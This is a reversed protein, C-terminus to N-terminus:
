SVDRLPHADPAPHIDPSYIGVIRLFEHDIASLVKKKDLALEAYRRANEGLRKRMEADEALAVIAESFRRTDGPPVVVGFDRVAGALQTGPEATAVVPRGSAFMGTLKSPMVLDAAEARQPLLHIDALNLLENLREPRQLALWHVNPLHATRSVLSERGPGAGCFVFRIDRNSALLTTAEVLIELGQKRGMAGAYLAVVSDPPIGLEKRLPSPMKTPYIESTDVWNPFLLIRDAPCGKERLRDLMKTSITSVRDLALMLKSELAAIIKQLWSSKLMGVAFGADVEFDQIHMWCRADALRATLRAAPVCLVTPQIVIVLAPRWFTHALMVPLSSLAFSALHVIRRLASPNPSVWIPCRFTTLSGAGDNRSSAERSYRAGSYGDRVRGEPNFPPATIMRVEHGRGALWSAMEGTYKGVGVLEPSFNIGYILIRV